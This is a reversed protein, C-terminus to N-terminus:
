QFAGMRPKQTIHRKLLHESLMEQPGRPQTTNISLTFLPMVPFPGQQVCKEKQRVLDQVHCVVWQCKSLIISLVQLCRMSPLPQEQSQSLTEWSSPLWWPQQSGPGEAVSGERWGGIDSLFWDMVTSKCGANAGNNRQEM